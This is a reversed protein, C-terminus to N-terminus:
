RASPTKSRSSAKTASTSASSARTPATPAHTSRAASAAWAPDVGGADTSIKMWPQQLQLALNEETMGFYITSIRQEEAVLLDIVADIWDQGREAAIESLRRGVYGQHEPRKFGLPM